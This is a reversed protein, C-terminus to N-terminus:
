QTADRALILAEHEEDTMGVPRGIVYDSRADPPVIVAGAPLDAESALVILNSVIENEIVAAIIEM